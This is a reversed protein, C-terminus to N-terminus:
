QALGRARAAAIAQQQAALAQARQQYIQQVAQAQAARQQLIARNQAALAEARQQYLQQVAQAQAAQQQL